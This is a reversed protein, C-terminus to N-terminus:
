TPVVRKWWLHQPPKYFFFSFYNPKHHKSHLGMPWITTYKSPYSYDFKQPCLRTQDFNWAKSKSEQITRTKNKPTPLVQTRQIKNILNHMLAHPCLTKTIAGKICPHSGWPTRRICRKIVRWFFFPFYTPPSSHADNKKGRETSDQSRKCTRSCCGM